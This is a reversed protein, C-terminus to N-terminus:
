WIDLLRLRNYIWMAFGLWLIFTIGTKLPAFVSAEMPAIATLNFASTTTSLNNNIANRILPFYGFPAKTSILGAINTYQSLSQTTPTFVSCLLTQWFNGLTSCDPAIYATSTPVSLPSTTAYPIGGGRNFTYFSYQDTKAGVYYVGGVNFVVYSRTYYTRNEDLIVPTNLLVNRDATGTISINNWIAYKYCVQTVGDDRIYDKAGNLWCTNSAPFDTDLFPTTGTASITSTPSWINPSIETVIGAMNTGGTLKLKLLYLFYSNQTDFPETTQFPQLPTITDVLPPTPQQNFGYYLNQLPNLRDPYGYWSCSTGAYTNCAIEPANNTNNGRFYVKGTKLNDFGSIKIHLSYFKAPNVTYPTKFYHRTIGTPLFSNQYGALYIVGYLNHYFSNLNQSEYTTAVMSFGSQCNDNDIRDNCEYLNLYMYGSMTSTADTFMDLYVSSITGTMGAPFFQTVPIGDSKDDPYHFGESTFTNNSQGVSDVSIALAPTKVSFVGIVALIFGFASILLRKKNFFNNTSTKM